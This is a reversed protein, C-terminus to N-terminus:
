QSELKKLGLSWATRRMRLAAYNADSRAGQKPSKCVMM